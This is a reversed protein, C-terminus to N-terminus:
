IVIKKLYEFTDASKIKTMCLWSIVDKQRKHPSGYGYKRISLIRVYVRILGLQKQDRKDDYYASQMERGNLYALM